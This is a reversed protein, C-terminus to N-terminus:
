RKVEKGSDIYRKIKGCWCSEINASSVCIKHIGKICNEYNKNMMIVM